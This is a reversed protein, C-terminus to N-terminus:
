LAFSTTINRLLMQARDYTPASTLVRILVEYGPHKTKEEISQLINEELKSPEWKVDRERWEEPTKVAAKAIDTANFGLGGQRQHRKKAVLKQARKMWGEGAPRLMIQVAAGDGLQLKSLANLLASMPDREMQDLTAIPYAAEHTLVLEGGVTGTL